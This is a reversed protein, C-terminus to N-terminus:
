YWDYYAYRIAWDFLEDCRAYSRGGGWKWPGYDFRDSLTGLRDCRVVARYQHAPTAFKSGTCSVYAWEGSISYEGGRVIKCDLAAQATAPTFWATITLVIGALIAAITKKM